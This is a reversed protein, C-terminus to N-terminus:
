LGLWQLVKWREVASIASGQRSLRFRRRLRRSDRRLAALEPPLLAIRSQRLSFDLFALADAVAPVEGQPQTRPAYALFLVRYRTGLLRASEPLFLACHWLRETATEFSAEM